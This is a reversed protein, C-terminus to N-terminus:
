QGTLTILAAAIETCNIGEAGDPIAGDMARLFELTSMSVARHEKMVQTGRVATDSVGIRTEGCKPMLADLLLNYESKQGPNDDILALKEAVSLRSSPADDRGSFWFLFVVGIIAASIWHGAGYGLIEVKKGKAKEPESAGPPLWDSGESM